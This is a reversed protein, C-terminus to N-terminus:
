LGLKKRWNASWEEMQRAYLEVDNGDSAPAYRSVLAYWDRNDVEERYVTGLLHVQAQIGKEVSPFRTFNGEGDPTGGFEAEWDAWRLNGPNNNAISLNNEPSLFSSEKQLQAMVFDVPVNDKRCAAVITAGQGALGTGELEADVREALAADEASLGSV